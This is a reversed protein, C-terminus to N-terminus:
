ASTGPELQTREVLVRKGDKLVYLGGGKGEHEDAQGAAQDAQAQAPLVVAADTAGPAIATALPTAADQAQGTEAPPTQNQPQMVNGKKSVPKSM